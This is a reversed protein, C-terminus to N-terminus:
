DTALQELLELAHLVEEKAFKYRDFSLESVANELRKNAEIQMQIKDYSVINSVKPLPAKFVSQKIKTEIAKPPPPPPQSEEMKSEPKNKLEKM